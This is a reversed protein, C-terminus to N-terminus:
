DENTALQRRICNQLEIIENDLMNIETQLGQDNSQTRFNIKTEEEDESAEVKRRFSKLRALLHEHEEKGKETYDEWYSLPKGYREETQRGKLKSSEEIIEPKNTTKNYSWNAKSQGVINEDEHIREYSTKDM